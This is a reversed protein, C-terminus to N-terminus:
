RANKNRRKINNKILIDRIANHKVGLEYGIDTLKRGKLYEECVYKHKELPIKLKRLGIRIAHRSNESATCWELNEVRNDLSNGNIHNIQAKNETNPIFAQAVLRHVSYKKKQVAIRPVQHNRKDANIEQKLIYCRRVRGLNSIQYYGEHGKIDKWIEQM